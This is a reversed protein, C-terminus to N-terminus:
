PSRERQRAREQGSRQQGSEEGAGPRQEFTGLRLCVRVGRKEIIALGPEQFDEETKKEYYKDGEFISNTM